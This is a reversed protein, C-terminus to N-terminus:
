STAECFFNQSKNIHYGAWEPLYQCVDGLIQDIESDFLDNTRDFNLFNSTQGAKISQIINSKINNSTIM